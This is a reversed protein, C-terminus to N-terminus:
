FYNTPAKFRLKLAVQMQAIDFEKLGNVNTTSIYIGYHITKITSRSDKISEMTIIKNTFFTRFGVITTDLYTGGAGFKMLLNITIAPIEYLLIGIVDIEWSNYISKTIGNNDIENVNPTNWETDLNLIKDTFNVVNSTTLTKIIASQNEVAIDVSVKNAENQEWIQALKNRATSYNNPLTM